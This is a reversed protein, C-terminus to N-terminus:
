GDRAEKDHAGHMQAAIAPDPEEGLQRLANLYTRHIFGALNSDHLRGCIRLAAAIACEDEPATLAAAKLHVAALPPETEAALDAIRLHLAAADNMLTYRATTLWDRHHDDLNPALQGRHLSAAQKLLRLEEPKTATTAQQTLHQALALDTTTIQPNLRYSRRTKDCIVPEGSAAAPPLLDRLRTRTRNMASFLTLRARRDDATEPWELARLERASIGDPRLALLTLLAAAQETEVPSNAEGPGLIDM